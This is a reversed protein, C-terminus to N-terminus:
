KAADLGRQLDTMLTKVAQDIPIGGTTINEGARNALSAWGLSGPPNAGRARMPRKLDKELIELVKREPVTKDQVAKALAKERLKPNSPPGTVVGATDVVAPHNIFFNVFKGALEPDPTTASVCLRNYWLFSYGEAAGQIAPPLHVTLEDKSVAQSDMFNNSQGVYVATREAVQPFTPQVTGPIAAPMVTGDKVWAEWMAFWDGLVAADFGIKGDKDFLEAGHQRLWRTIHLQNCATYPMGYFGEGKAKAYDKAVAGLDEWRWTEDDPIEIGVADMADKNIQVTPNIQNFVASFQKGGLIRWSDVQGPAFQSYDIIGDNLGDLDLLVKQSAYTAIQSEPVWFLDPLRKAAAQTTMRDLYAAYEAPELTLSVEPNEQEFTKAFKTYNAQVQAPGWFSFRLNGASGSGSTAAKPVCGTAAILSLLASGALVSRRTLPRNPLSFNSFTM